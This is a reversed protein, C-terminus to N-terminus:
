AFTDAVPTEQPPRRTRWLWIMVAAFLAEIVLWVLAEEIREAGLTLSENIERLLQAADLNSGAYAGTFLLTNFGTHFAIAPWLSRRWLALGAFSLGALSYAVFSLLRAPEGWEFPPVHAAGFLLSTIAAAWGLGLRRGLVSMGWGRFVLEEAMSNALMVLALVAAGRLLGLPEARAQQPLAEVGAADGGVQVIATVIFVAFLAGVALWLADQGPNLRALGATALPRKEFVRVRLMVLATVASLGVVTVAATARWDTQPDMQLAVMVGGAVILPIIALVVGLLVILPMAWLKPLRAAAPIPAFADAGRRVPLESM